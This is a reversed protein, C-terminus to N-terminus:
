TTAKALAPPQGRLPPSLDSRSAPIVTTQGMQQAKPEQAANAQASAKSFTGFGILAIFVAALALVLGLLVRLNFFASRSTSKEKM